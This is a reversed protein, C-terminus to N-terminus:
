GPIERGSSLRRSRLRDKWRSTAGGFKLPTRWQNLIPMRDIRRRTSTSRTPNSGVAEAKRLRRDEASRDAWCSSSLDRRVFYTEISTNKRGARRNPNPPPFADYPPERPGRQRRMTRQNNLVGGM